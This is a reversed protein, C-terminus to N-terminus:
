LGFRQLEWSHYCVVYGHDLSSHLSCKQYDELFCHWVSKGLEEKHRKLSFCHELQSYGDHYTKVFLLEFPVIYLCM